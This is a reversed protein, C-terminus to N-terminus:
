YFKCLDTYYMVNISKQLDIMRTIDITPHSLHVPASGMNKHAASLTCLPEEKRQRTLILSNNKNVM